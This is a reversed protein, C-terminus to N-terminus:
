REKEEEQELQKEKQEVLVFPLVDEANETYIHERIDYNPNHEVEIYDYFRMLKYTDFNGPCNSKWEEAYKEAFLLTELLTDKAKMDYPFVESYASFEGYSLRGESDFIPDAILGCVYDSVEEYVKLADVISLGDTRICLMDRTLHSNNERCMQHLKNTLEIRQKTM